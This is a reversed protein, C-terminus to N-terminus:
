VETTQNSFRMIAKAQQFHFAKMMLTYGQIMTYKEGGPPPPTNGTKGGRTKESCMKGGRNEGRTKQRSGSSPLHSIAGCASIQPKRKEASM